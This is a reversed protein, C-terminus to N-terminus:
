HVANSYVFACPRMLLFDEDEHEMTSRLLVSADEECCATCGGGKQEELIGQCRAAIADANLRNLSRTATEVFHPSLESLSSVESDSDCDAIQQGVLSAFLRKM